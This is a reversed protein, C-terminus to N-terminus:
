YLPKKKKKLQAGFKNLRSLLYAVRASFCSTRFYIRLRLFLCPFVSDVVSLFKRLRSAVFCCLSFGPHCAAVGFNASFHKSILDVRQCTLYSWAGLYPLCQSTSDERVGIQSVWPTMIRAIKQSTEDVLQYFGPRLRNGALFRIRL